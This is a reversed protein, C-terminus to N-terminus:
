RRRGIMLESIDVGPDNPDSRKSENIAGALGFSSLSVGSDDPDSGALAGHKTASTAYNSDIQSQTKEFDTTPKPKPTSLKSAEEKFQEKRARVEQIATPTRTKAANLHAAYRTEDSYTVAHQTHSLGEAVEKVVTSLVGSSLVIERLLTKDSLTEKICERVVPMLIKKLNAKNIAM